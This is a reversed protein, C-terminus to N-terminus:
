VVSSASTILASSTSARTTVLGVVLNVNNAGVSAAKVVSRSVIGAVRLVLSVASGILALWLARSWSTRFNWTMEAAVAVMADPRGAVAVATSVRDVPLLSVNFAAAGCILAPVTSTVTVVKSKVAGLPTTCMIPVTSNGGDHELVTTPMAVVLVSWVVRTANSVAASRTAVRLISVTSVPYVTKAGVFAAKALISAAVTVQRLRGAFLSWRTLRSLYWTTPEVTTAPPRVSPISIVDSSVFEVFYLNADLPLVRVESPVAAFIMVVSRSAVFPTTWM